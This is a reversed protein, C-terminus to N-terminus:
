TMWAAKYSENHCRQVLSSMKHVLPLLDGCEEEAQKDVNWGAGLIASVEIRRICAKNPVDVPTGEKTIDGGLIVGSSDVVEVRSEHEITVSSHEPLVIGLFRTNTRFFELQGM